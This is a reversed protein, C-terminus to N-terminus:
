CCVTNQERSSISVTDPPASSCPHSLEMGDKLLIYHEAAVMAMLCGVLLNGLTMRDWGTGSTARRLPGETTDQQAVGLCGVFAKANKERAGRSTVMARKTSTNELNQLDQLLKVERHAHLTRSLKLQVRPVTGM